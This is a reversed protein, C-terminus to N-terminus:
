FRTLDDMINYLNNIIDQEETEKEIMKQLFLNELRKIETLLSMSLAENAELRAKLFESDQELRAQKITM